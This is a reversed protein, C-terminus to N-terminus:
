HSSNLRTSKRDLSTPERDNMREQRSKENDASKNANQNRLTSRTNQPREKRTYNYKKGVHGRWLRPPNAASLEDLETNKKPQRERCCCEHQYTHSCVRPQCHSCAKNYFLKCCLGTRTINQPPPK